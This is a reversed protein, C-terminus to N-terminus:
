ISISTSVREFDYLYIFVSYKTRFGAHITLLTRRAIAIKTLGVGTLMLGRIDEPRVSGRHGSARFIRYGLSYSPSGGIAGRLQSSRNDFVAALM